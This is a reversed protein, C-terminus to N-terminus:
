TDQVRSSLWLNTVHLDEVEGLWSKIAVSNELLIFHTYHPIIPKRGGGGGGGWPDRLEAAGVM